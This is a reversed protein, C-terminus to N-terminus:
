FALKLGLLVGASVPRQTLGTSARYVSETQYRVTPALSASLRATLAYNLAVAGTLAVTVPRFPSSGPRVRETRWTRGDPSVLHTGGLFVQTQAGVAVDAWWPNRATGGDTGLRYRVLLPVTLFRYSPRLIRTSVHERATVTPTTVTSTTTTNTTVVNYTWVTDPRPVLVTEFGIVQQNLNYLPSLVSDHVIRISYTPWEERIQQSNRTTQSAYAVAVDTRRDTLRLEAGTSALGLGAGVSWRPTLRYEAGVAASWGGRGMEHTRRLASLTDTPASQLGFFNREPAFAVAVSWRRMPAPPVSDVASATPAAALVPPAEPLVGLTLLLSDARHTLATLTARACLLARRRTAATEASSDTPSFGALTTEAQVLPLLMSPVAAYLSEPATQTAHSTDRHMGVATQTAHSIDRDIGVATPTAHSIDRDIGVPTQIAHSVDRHMGVATPTAHSVDRDTGVATQIAHSADRDMGVSTAPEASVVRVTAPWRDVGAMLLMGVLATLLPVGATRWRPAPLAPAPRLGAEVGAWLRPPPPPVAGPPASLFDFAERLRQDLPESNFDPPLQDSPNM